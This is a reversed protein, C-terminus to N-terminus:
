LLVFKKEWDATVYCAMDLMCIYDRQYFFGAWHRVSGSFNQSAGERTFWGKKIKCHSDGYLLHSRM